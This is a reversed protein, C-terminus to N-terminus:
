AWCLYYSTIIFRKVRNSATCSSSPCQTMPYVGPRSARRLCASTRERLRLYDSPYMAWVPMLFVIGRWRLPQILREPERNVGVVVAGVSLVPYDRRGRLGAIVAMVGALDAFKPFSGCNRRSSDVVPRGADVRTPAPTVSARAVRIAYEGYDRSLVGFARAIVRSLPSPV